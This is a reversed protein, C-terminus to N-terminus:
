TGHWKHGDLRTASRQTINKFSTKTVRHMVQSVNLLYLLLLISAQVDGPHEFNEFVTAGPRFSFPSTFFCSYTKGMSQPHNAIFESLHHELHPCSLLAVYSYWSLQTALSEIMDYTSVVCSLLIIIGTRRRSTIFPM